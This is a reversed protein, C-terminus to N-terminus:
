DEEYEAIKQNLRDILKQYNKIIELQHKYEPSNEDMGDLELQLLQVRAQLQEREARLLRLRYDAIDTFIDGIIKGIWLIGKAGLSIDTDTVDTNVKAFQVAARNQANVIGSDVGSSRYRKIAKVFSKSLQNGIVRNILQIVQPLSDKLMKIQYPAPKFLKPNRDSMFLAIYNVVFNAFTRSNAVMGFVAVQSIKTNFLTITKDAYLDNINDNVENLIATLGALTDQFAGLFRERMVRQAAGGIGAYIQNYMQISLKQTQKVNADIYARLKAGNADGLNVFFQQANRLAGISDDILDVLQDREMTKGAARPAVANVANSLQDLSRSM